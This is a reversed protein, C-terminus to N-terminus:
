FTFRAGFQFQRPTNVTNTIQGFPVGQSTATTIGPVSPYGYQPTNTINYSSVDFRLAKTEGLAFTKYFWLGLDRAGRTRVHDLYAPATGPLFPSAPIAFCNDDFWAAKTHRDVIDGASGAPLALLFYPLSAATQTLAVYGPGAGLSVMLWAAGVNQIFTGVDSVVDAILLNRFIPGRLPRWLSASVAAKPNDEATDTL